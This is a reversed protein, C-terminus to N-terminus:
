KEDPAEEEEQGVEEDEEEAAEAELTAIAELQSEMRAAFQKTLRQSIDGVMGRGFTAAKGSLKLETLVTVRSGKDSPELSSTITANFMGKGRTETGKAKMVVRYADDDREVMTVKGKFSMTVPGLKVKAAAKFNDEDVVEKLEAGPMCPVVLEPDLLFAWAREPAAAVEFDNELKM